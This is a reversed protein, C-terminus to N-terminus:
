PKLRRTSSTPMQEYLPSAEAQAARSAKRLGLGLSAGFPVPTVMQEYTVIFQKAIADASFHRQVHVRCAQRDLRGIAEPTLYSTLHDFDDALYGTVGPAVIEVLAGGGSAIVPTGCAMAELAVMGFPEAWRNPMVLAAAGGLLNFKKTGGVNGHYRILNGDIYPLSEVFARFAPKEWHESAHGKAAEALVEDRDSIGAVPGAVDLAINHDACYKILQDQGKNPDFRGMVLLRQGGQGVPYAAAEICNHIVRARQRVRMPAAAIQSKSIATFGLRPLKVLEAYNEAHVQYPHHMTHLVPPYDGAPLSAALTNTISLSGTFDHIVDFRGSWALQLVKSAYTEVKPM